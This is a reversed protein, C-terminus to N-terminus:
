FKFIRHRVSKLKDCIFFREERNLGGFWIIIGVSLFSILVGGIFYSWSFPFFYVFFLPLPLSILVIIVERLFVLRLYAGVPFSVSYYLEWLRAFLGALAIFISLIFTIYSPYGWRYCIFTLIFILLFGFSAILQYNRIKGSAQSVSVIPSYSSSILLEIVVLRTFLVSHDPVNKLWLQLIVPMYLLVPLSFLYLLYFSLKSWSFILRYMYGLDGQAWSKIIQPRVAMVFNSVFANIAGQVQYAIGRAANQVASFFINILMNVGQSSLMNTTDGVLIWGSFSYMKLFFQKDWIFRLHCEPFHRRCYYSYAGRVLFTVGLLLAGYLKLKDFPLWFLLFVTLLKLGVELFSLYAFINMREHAIIAANYPTTIVTVAFTAISFHYVWLAAQMREAPIVLQTKIFWLGITEALLVIGCAIFCHGIIAISFVKQLETGGQGMEYNLFRQTATSLSNNFFALMTVVGGVVNYIGYDEVGLVNLVVRSTYLTVAMILFMRVYLVATNKAIRRTNESSM